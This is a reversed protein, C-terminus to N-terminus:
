WPVDLTEDDSDGETATDVGDDLTNALDWTGRGVNKFRDDNSLHASINNIPDRGPIRVGRQRLREHILSRHLPGETSLIEYMATRLENSSSPPSYGYQQAHPRLAQPEQGQREFFDLTSVLAQHDADIQRKQSEVEQIAVKLADIMSQNSM